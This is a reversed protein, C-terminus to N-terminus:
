DIKLAELRWTKGDGSSLKCIFKARLKAGFSNPADVFGEVLFVGSPNETIRSESISSFSSHSPSKLREKVFSQAMVYAGGRSPKDPLSKGCKAAIALLIGLVVALLLTKNM